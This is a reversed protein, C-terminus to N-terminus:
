RVAGLKIDPQNQGGAPEHREGELHGPARQDIRHARRPQNGYQRHRRNAQARKRKRDPGSEQHDHCGTDQMGARTAHESGDDGRDAQTEDTMCGQPRPEAAFPKAAAAIPM